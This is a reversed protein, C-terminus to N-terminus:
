TYDLLLDRSCLADQVAAVIAPHHALEDVVSFILHSKYYLLDSQKFDKLGSMEVELRSRM